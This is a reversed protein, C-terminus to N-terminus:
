KLLVFDYEELITIENCSNKKTVDHEGFIYKGCELKKRYHNKNRQFVIKDQRTDDEVKRTMNQQKWEVIETKGKPRLLM